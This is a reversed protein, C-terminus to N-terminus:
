NEDLVEKRKLDARIKEVMETVEEETYLRGNEKIVRQHIDQIVDQIPREPGSSDMKM